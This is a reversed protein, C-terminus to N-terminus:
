KSNEILVLNWANILTINSVVFQKRHVKKKIGLDKLDEDDLEVLFEGDVGESEFIEVYQEKLIRM